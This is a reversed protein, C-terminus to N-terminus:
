WLGEPNDVAIYAELTVEGDKIYGNQPDVLEQFECIIHCTFCPLVVALKVAASLTVLLGSLQVAVSLYVASLSGHCIFDLLVALDVAPM